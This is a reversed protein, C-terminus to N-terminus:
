MTSVDGTSWYRGIMMKAASPARKVTKESTLEAM